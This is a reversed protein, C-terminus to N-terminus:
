PRRALIVDWGQAQEQYYRFHIPKKVEDFLAAAIDRADKDSVTIQDGEPIGLPLHDKFVSYRIANQFQAPQDRKSDIFPPYTFRLESKADWGCIRALHLLAVGDVFRAVGAAELAENRWDVGRWKALKEGYDTLGSPIRSGQNDARLRAAQISFEISGYGYAKGYGLKHRINSGPELVMVLLRVLPEPVRDLYIRFTESTSGAELCDLHVRQFDKDHAYHWSRQSKEYYQTCRVPDQHYYFKRGWYQGGVFEAVNPSRKRVQAPQFYWWNSLSPKGGGMFADSDIDPLWYQNEVVASDDMFADEIFLKGKRTLVDEENDEVRRGEVDGEAVIGFLYSAVDIAKDERKDARYSDNLTPQLWSDESSDVNESSDFTRYGVHRKQPEKPYKLTAQSVWGNTLTEVFARLCGRMTSSPICVSGDERYLTSHNTGRARLTGVIHLPTLTKLQVDIYGSLQEGFGDLEAPSFLTPSNQFPVFDFPNPNHM